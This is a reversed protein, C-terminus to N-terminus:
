RVHTHPESVEALSLNRPARYLLYVTGIDSYTDIGFVVCTKSDPPEPRRPGRKSAFLTDLVAAATIEEFKNIRIDGVAVTKSGVSVNWKLSM